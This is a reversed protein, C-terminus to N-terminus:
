EGETPAVAVRAEREIRRATRRVDLLARLATRHERAKRLWAVQHLMDAESRAFVRFTRWAEFHRRTEIDLALHVPLTATKSPRPRRTSSTPTPIADM